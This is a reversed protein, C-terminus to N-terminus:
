RRNMKALLRLIEMYLWLLTTMLAFAGYWEMAKPARADVLSDITDFDLLLNFAALGVVFLSFAIGYGTADHIFPVTVGFFSLVFTALYLLMIAGTAAPVAMRLKQTVKILGTQYLFLMMFLVGFTLGVAQGAISANRVSMSIWATLGGLALGKALSYVPTTIPALSPKFVTALASIAGVIFGGMIFPMGVAPNGALLNGNPVMKLYLWGGSGLALAICVMTKVCTGTVSM